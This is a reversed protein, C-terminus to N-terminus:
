DADIGLSKILEEHSIGTKEKRSSRIASVEEPNSMIDATEIWSDLEDKSILIVPDAGRLKIEYSRLGKSALKILTYLQDRAESATLTSSNLM